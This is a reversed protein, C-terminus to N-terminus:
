MNKFQVYVYFDNTTHAMIDVRYLKHYVTHVFLNEEM